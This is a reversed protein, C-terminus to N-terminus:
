PETFLDNQNRTSMAAVISRDGAAASTPSGAAYPLFRVSGDAFCFNAGGTHYSWMHYADCTRPTSKPAQYNYPLDPTCAGDPPNGVYTGDSNGRYTAYILTNYPLTGVHGSLAMGWVNDPTTFNIPGREAFLITNSTGDSVSAMTVKAQSYVTLNRSRACMIGFDEGTGTGAQNYLDGFKWGAVGLYHLPATPKGDSSAPIAGQVPASACLYTKVVKDRVMTEFTAFNTGFPQNAIADQEIGSLLVFPWNETYTALAGGPPLATTSAANPFKPFFNARDHYGHVALGLQKLNNTCKTKNAAERVKQVAPLLLGILIAIIAIVVLLEILTFGRRPRCQTLSM